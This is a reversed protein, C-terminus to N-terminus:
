MPLYEKLIWYALQKRMRIIDDNDFFIPSDLACFYTFFFVYMGSDFDNQQCPFHMGNVATAITWDASLGDAREELNHDLFRNLLGCVFLARAHEQLLDLNEFKPDLYVMKKGSIDVIALCYSDTDQDVRDL